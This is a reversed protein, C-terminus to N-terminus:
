ATPSVVLVTADDNDKGFRKLLGRAQQTASRDHLEECDEWSWHSSVGDSHLVLRYSPKWDLTEVYPEPANGGVVGRRVALSAREAGGLHTYINGIGAFEVSSDTWDFQALAMVVGRTGRCARGTGEFIAPLPQDFHGEVYSRAANAAKHAPLGHGLGDIVGVLAKDNWRNIVFSDGNPESPNVPRSAAGVDVPSEASQEYVPTVWRDAVIQTGYNPEGPVSVTVRDMMRNVAGLGGGLSGATSEGDAFAAEIDDIGPGADLSELRIGDRDGDTIAAVILEGREAHKYVNEALESAVIGVEETAQEDFGVETAVTTATQRVLVSDGATALEHRHQNIYATGDREDPRRQSGSVDGM